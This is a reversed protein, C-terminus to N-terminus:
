QMLADILDGVALGEGSPAAAFAESQLAVTKTLTGNFIVDCNVVSPCAGNVERRTLSATVAGDPFNGSM